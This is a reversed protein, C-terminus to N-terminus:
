PPPPTARPPAAQRFEPGPDCGGLVSCRMAVIDHEAGGVDNATAAVGSPDVGGLHDPPSEARHQGRIVVIRRRQERGKRERPAANEWEPLGPRQYRLG